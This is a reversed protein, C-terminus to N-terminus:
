EDCREKFETPGPQTCIGEIYGLDLYDLMKAMMYHGLCYLEGKYSHSAARYCDSM